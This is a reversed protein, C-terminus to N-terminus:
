ARAIDGERGTTKRGSCSQPRAGEVDDVVKTEAGAVGEQTVAPTKESTVRAM